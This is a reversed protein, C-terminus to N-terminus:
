NIVKALPLTHPKADALHGESQKQRYFHDCILCNLVCSFLNALIQNSALVMCLDHHVQALDVSFVGIIGM